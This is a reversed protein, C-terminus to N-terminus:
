ILTPRHYSAGDWIIILRTSSDSLSQLYQLFAVTNVENGAEYGQLVFQKTLYRTSWLLNTTRPHIQGRCGSKSQASDLWLWQYGGAGSSVRRCVDGASVWQCDGQAVAGIAASNRKKEELLQEDKDPHTPYSKKWSLGARRLLAYYSQLPNTSREMNM